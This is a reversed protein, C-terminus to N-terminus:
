QDLAAAEKSPDAGRGAASRPRKKNDLNMRFRARGRERVKTSASSLEDAYCAAALKSCEAHLSARSTSSARFASTLERPLATANPLRSVACRHRWTSPQRWYKTCAPTACASRASPAACSVSRSRLAPTAQLCRLGLIQNSYTGAVFSHIEFILRQCQIYGADVDQLLINRFQLHLLMLAFTLQLTAFPLVWVGPAFSVQPLRRRQASFTCWTVVSWASRCARLLLRAATLVLPLGYM